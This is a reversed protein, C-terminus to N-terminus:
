QAAEKTLVGDPDQHLEDFGPISETAKLLLYVVVAHVLDEVVIGRQLNHIGLSLFGYECRRSGETSWKELM